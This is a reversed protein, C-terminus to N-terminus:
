SAGEGPGSASSSRRSRRPSRSRGSRSHGRRRCRIGAVCSRPPRRTAAAACRARCRSRGVRSVSAHRQALADAKHGGTCDCDRNRDGAEDGVFDDARLQQILDVALEYTLRLRNLAVRAMRQSLRKGCVGRAVATGSRILLDHQRVSRDSRGSGASLNGPVRCAAATAAPWGANMFSTVTFPAMRRIYVNGSTPTLTEPSCIATWNARGSAGTSFTRDVSRRIRASTNRAPM